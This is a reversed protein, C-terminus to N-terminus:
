DHFPCRTMRVTPAASKLVSLIDTRMEVETHHNNYIGPAWVTHESSAWGEGESSAASSRKRVVSRWTMSVAPRGWGPVPAGSRVAIGVGSKAVDTRSGAVLKGQKLLDDIQAVPLIVVDAMEGGAVRKAVENVGGWQTMVRHGSAKEFAPVLENYAERTAISSLVKIETPM